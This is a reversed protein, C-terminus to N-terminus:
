VVPADKEIEKLYNKLLEETEASLEIFVRRADKPDMQRVLMGSETMGTIWRLATTAPVAAAICLSSVSVNKGELGAAMLDLLIDWAPDAFLEKGFYRDRLRRLRILRRIDAAQQSESSAPSFDDHPQQQKPAPRFSVPKDAILDKRTGGARENGAMEALARAVGALEDSLKHLDGLKADRSNDHLQGMRGRRNARALTLLAEADSADVLFQCQSVPLAAYAADLGLMDIWIIAPTDVSRLYSSIIALEGAPFEMDSSFDALLLDLSHNDASLPTLEAEESDAVVLDFGIEEALKSLEKSRLPNPCYLWARVPSQDAGDLGSLTPM